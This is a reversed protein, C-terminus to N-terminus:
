WTLSTEQDGRSHLAYFRNEKPAENSGSEQTQDSSKDKGRVNPCYRVKHRRKGCGFCNDTGKLCDDYHTKSYKGCTPKETPSNNGKGKKLNPNSVRYGSSNPFNSPVQSSVCKKFRTKDQIELKNKSSGGDFSRARRSERSKRKSGEDEM